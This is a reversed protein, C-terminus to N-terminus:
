MQYRDGGGGRHSAFFFMYIFIFLCRLEKINLIGLRLFFWCFPVCDLTKSKYGSIWKVPAGMKDLMKDMHKDHAEKRIKNRKKEIENLMKIEHELVKRFEIQQKM